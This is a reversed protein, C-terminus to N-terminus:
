TRLGRLPTSHTPSHPVRLPRLPVLQIRLQIALHSVHPPTPPYHPDSSLSCMFRAALHSVRQSTHPSHPSAFPSYASCAPCLDQVALRLSSTHTSAFLSFCQVPAIMAVAEAAPRNRIHAGARSTASAFICHRRTQKGSCISGSRLLTSTSRVLISTVIALAPLTCHTLPHPLAPNISHPM